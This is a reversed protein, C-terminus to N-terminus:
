CGIYLDFFDPHTCFATQWNTGSPLPEDRQCFNDYTNFIEYFNTPPANTLYAITTMHLLKGDKYQPGYDPWNGGGGCVGQGNYRCDQVGGLRVPTSTTPTYGIRIRAAM